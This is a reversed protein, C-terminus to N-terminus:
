KKQIKLRVIETLAEVTLKLGSRHLISHCNSCVLALDNETTIREGIFKQGIPTRHHCEIFDAGLNGYMEYFDFDCIECKCNGISLAKMKVKNVIGKDRERDLHTRYFEKGETTLFPEDMFDSSFTSTRTHYFSKINQKLLIPKDEYRQFLERDLASGGKLGEAGGTDIFKLNRLKLHVSSANRFKNYDEVENPGYIRLDRIRTSLEEILPDTASINEFMYYDFYFDLAILIEQETWKPNAIRM